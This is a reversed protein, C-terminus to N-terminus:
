LLFSLKNLTTAEAAGIGKHDYICTCWLENFEIDALNATGVVGGINSSLEEFSIVGKDVTKFMTDSVKAANPLKWAWLCKTSCNDKQM